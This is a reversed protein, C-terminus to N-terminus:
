TYQLEVLLRFSRLGCTKAGSLNVRRNLDLYRQVTEPAFRKIVRTLTFHLDGPGASRLRPWTPQGLFFGAIRWWILVGSRGEGAGDVARPLLARLKCVPLQEATGRLLWRPM